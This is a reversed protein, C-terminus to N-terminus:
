NWKTEDYIPATIHMPITMVWGYHNEWVPGEIPEYTMQEPLLGKLACDEEFDNKMRAYFDLMVLLAAEQADEIAGSPNGGPPATRKLFLLAVEQKLRNSDVDGTAAGTIYDVAVFYMSANTKIAAPAKGSQFPIFVVRANDSHLLQKHKVCLNKIYAHLPKLFLENM